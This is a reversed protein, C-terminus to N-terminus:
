FGTLEPKTTDTGVISTMTSDAGALQVRTTDTGIISIARGPPPPPPSTVVLTAAYGTVAFAGPDASLTFLGTLNLTAPFGTVVYSAFLADLATTFNAPEGTVSFAADAADMALSFAAADGTVAFSGPSAVLITTGTAVLTAAFGTITYSAPLGDLSITFTAPDGTVALSTDAADLAITFNAADGTVTVSGASAFLGTNFTALSGTVSFAGPAGSIALPPPPPSTGSLPSIGRTWTFFKVPAHNTRSTGTLTGNQQNGSFDPEPSALGNLPWYGLLATKRINFPLAGSALAQIEGASLVTNWLGAEAVSGKLLRGATSPDYGIGLTGTFSAINGNAAATGDSAGNVYGVLGAASSYTLILNYWTGTALTHSGPDYDVEATAFVYMAVKGTSKVLISCYKSGSRSFIGSYSPTWSTGNVWVSMTIATPNLSSSTGLSIEDSTGNFGRAV